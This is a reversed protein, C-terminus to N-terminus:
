NKFKWAFLAFVSSIVFGTLALGLGHHDHFVRQAGTDASHYYSWLDVGYRIFGLPVIVIFSFFAILFLLSKLNIM